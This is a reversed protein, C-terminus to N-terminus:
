SCNAWYYNYRIAIRESVLLSDSILSSIRWNWACSVWLLNLSLSTRVQQYYTYSDQPLRGSPLHLQWRRLSACDTALHSAVVGRHRNNGSSVYSYSRRADDEPIETSTAALHSPMPLLYRFSHRSRRQSDIETNIGRIQAGYLLSEAKLLANFILKWSMLDCFLSVVFGLFFFPLHSLTLSVENPWINLSLLLHKM